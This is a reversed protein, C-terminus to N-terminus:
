QEFPVQQHAYADLLMNKSQELLAHFSPNDSLNSRLVLTNVFFGILGAVEVQERNAVPTGVVIDQENSYRALLVSFVAHLGMFLRAGRDQCMAMLR